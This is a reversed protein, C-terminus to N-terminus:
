ESRSITVYKKGVYLRYHHPSSSDARVQLPTPRRLQADNVTDVTFVDHGGIDTIIFKNDAIFGAGYAGPSLKRGSIEIPVETIFYAQYKEQVGTSYGSNDVLTVLVMYGDSFRVGGSNRTQTTASQGRYFVAPPLIKAAQAPTLAAESEVKAAPEQGFASIAPLVLLAAVFVAAYRISLRFRQTM